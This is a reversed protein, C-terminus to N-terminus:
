KLDEWSLQKLLRDFKEECNFKDCNALISHLMLKINMQELQDFGLIDCWITQLVFFNDYM